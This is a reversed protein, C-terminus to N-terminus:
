RACRPRRRRGGSATPSGDRAAGDRQLPDALLNPSRRARAVDSRARCAARPALEGRRARSRRRHPQTVTSLDRRGPDLAREHEEFRVSSTPRSSATSTCRRRRGRAGRGRAPADVLLRDHDLHELRGDPSPARPCARGSGRRAAAREADARSMSPGRRRRGRGASRRRRRRDGRGLACAVDVASGILGAARAQRAVEDLGADGVMSPHVAQHAPLLQREEGAAAQRVVPEGGCIARCARPQAPSGVASCSRSRRRRCPRGARCRRTRGRLAELSLPASARM